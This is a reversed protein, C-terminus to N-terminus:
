LLFSNSSSSFVNRAENTIKVKISAINIGLISKNILRTPETAHQTSAKITGGNNFKISKQFRDTLYAIGM